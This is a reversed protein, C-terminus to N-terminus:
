IGVVEWGKSILLSVHEDKARERNMAVCLFHSPRSMAVYLNRYQAKLTKSSSNDMSKVGCMMPLAEALDFRKSQGGHSELVLSALHTEGKMSATTGIGIRVTRGGNEVVCEDIKTAKSADVEPLSFVDLSAFAEESLSSELLCSVPTYLTRSVTAWKEPSDNLGRSFTLDRCALRIPMTDIGAKSLARFIQSSDRIDKVHSSKAERLVLLILRRINSVRESLAFPQGAVSTDSLLAWASEAKAVSLTRASMFEPWYDGLHRGPPANAEGQKRTCLARVSGRELEQDDFRKLVLEGFAQIVRGVEETQYLIITPSLRKENLGTVAEGSLQVSAVPDAIDQSFRKSTRISLAGKKPFTLKSLDDENNIIRQNVDGYRQMVVSSDFAKGLITEQILSTDQMEDILVLPFRHSAAKQLDPYTALLAQAYAFMDDFRFVGASSLKKKLEVIKPYSATHTGPLNGGGTTVVIDNNVWEYELTAVGAQYGENNAILARLGGDRRAQSVARRAFADDDIVDITIDRGRLYPLALYQNVFGHITGIFHPYSLLRSGEVTAGLRRQIEKRAVNTHSIVCIGRREYPWKRALLYLKAALLSTKGSGPAANVDLSGNALLVNRREQDGFDLDPFVKRLLDVDTEELQPVSM